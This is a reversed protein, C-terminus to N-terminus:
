SLDCKSTPINNIQFTAKPDYRLIIDFGECFIMYEELLVDLMAGFLLTNKPVVPTSIYFKFHLNYQLRSLVTTSSVIFSLPDFYLCKGSQVDDQPAM